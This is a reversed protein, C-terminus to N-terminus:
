KHKSRWKRTRQPGTARHKEQMHAPECFLKPRGRPVEPALFFNSCTALACRKLSAGLGLREDALMLVAHALIASLRLPIYFRTAHPYRRKAGTATRRLEYASVPDLMYRAADSLAKFAEPPLAKRGISLTLYGRLEERHREIFQTRPSEAWGVAALAPLALVDPSAALPAPLHEGRKGNAFALVSELFERNSLSASVHEHVGALITEAAKHIEEATVMFGRDQSM